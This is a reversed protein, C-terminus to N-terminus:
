LETCVRTRPISSVIAAKHGLFPPTQNIKWCIFVITAKITRIVTGGSWQESKPEKLPLWDPDGNLSGQLGLVVMSSISTLNSQNPTRRHNMRDVGGVSIVFM